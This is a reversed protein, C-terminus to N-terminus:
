ARFTTEQDTDVETSVIVIPASRTVVLGQDLLGEAPVWKQAGELAAHLGSLAERRARYRRSTGSATMTVLGADRLVALHQSITPKTVPLAAAIEGSPLERTWILALIERRMPASLASLVKDIDRM